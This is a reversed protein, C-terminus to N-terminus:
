TYMHINKTFRVKRAIQFLFGKSARKWLELLFINKFVDFYQALLTCISAVLYVFLLLILCSLILACSDAEFTFRAIPQVQWQVNGYFMKM